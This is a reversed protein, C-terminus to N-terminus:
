TKRIYHLGHIETSKSSDGAVVTLTRGSDITLIGSPAQVSVLTVIVEDFVIGSSGGSSGGCEGIIFGFTSSYQISSM